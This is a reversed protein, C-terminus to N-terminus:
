WAIMKEGNVSFCFALLTLFLFCWFLTKLLSRLLFNPISCHRHGSFACIYIARQPFDVDFGYWTLTISTSSSLKQTSPVFTSLFTLPFCTPGVKVFPSNLGNLTRIRYWSTLSCHVQWGLILLSFLLKESSLSSLVSDSLPGYRSSPTSSIDVKPRLVPM